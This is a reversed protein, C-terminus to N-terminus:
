RSPPFALFRVRALMVLSGGCVTSFIRSIRRPASSASAGALSSSANSIERDSCCPFAAATRAASRPQPTSRAIVDRRERDRSKATARTACRIRSGPDFSAAARSKRGSVATEVEADWSPRGSFTLSSRSQSVM